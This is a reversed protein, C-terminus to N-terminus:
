FNKRRGSPKCIGHRSEELTKTFNTSEVKEVMKELTNIVVDATEQDIGETLFEGWRKIRRWIEEKHAKARDTLFIRNFRKDSQDEYKIVFGKHELSQIARATAAKDIYLYCSMEDQTAGDNKYLYLLFSCEASTIGFEKLSYNLYVQTQRHLISLLREFSRKLEKREKTSM